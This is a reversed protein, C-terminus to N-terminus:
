LCFLLKQISPYDSNVDSTLCFSMCITPFNPHTSIYIVIGSDQKLEM